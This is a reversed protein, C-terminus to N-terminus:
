ISDSRKRNYYLYFLNDLKLRLQSRSYLGLDDYQCIDYNYINLRVMKVADEDSSSNRFYDLM